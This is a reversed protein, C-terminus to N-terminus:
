LQPEDKKKKVEIGASTSYRYTLEVGLSDLAAVIGSLLDELDIPPSSQINYNVTMFYNSRNEELVVKYPPIKVHTDTPVSRELVVRIKPMKTEKVAEEWFWKM